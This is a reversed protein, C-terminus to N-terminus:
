AAHKAVEAPAGGFLVLHLGEVVARALRQDGGFELGDIDAAIVARLWASTPGTVWADVDRDLRVNCSALKGNELNAMAGVLRRDRGDGMEVGLRCSGSFDAAVSILPLVLLFAAEADIRTIPATEEPLHRREWRAAAALPGIGRRLWPTPVYPTGKGNGPCPEVQGTLRMAGLRRELSPYSLGGIIRDLETLSLPRAALARLMTSSWSEILSKVAAKGKGNGFDLPGDPAERLWRELTDVVFLLDKGAATLEYELVGPFRDRRRKEIANARDLEKLHARLTTQAPSGAERRLDVLRKPGDALKRLVLGNLPSALLSLARAGSRATEVGNVGM